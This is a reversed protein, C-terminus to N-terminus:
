QTIELLPLAQSESQIKDATKMAAKLKERQERRKRNAWMKKMRESQKPNKKKKKQSVLNAPVVWECEMERANKEIERATLVYSLLEQIKSLELLVAQEAERQFSKEIEFKKHLEHIRRGTFIVLGFLISVCIWIM